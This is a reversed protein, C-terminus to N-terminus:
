RIQLVIPWRVIAMLSGRKEIARTDITRSPVQEYGVRHVEYQYIITDGQMQKSIVDKRFDEFHMYMGDGPWQQYSYMYFFVDGVEFNYIDRVGLTQLGMGQNEIGVLDLKLSDHLKNYQKIGFQQSLVITDRNSLQIMLVSDVKGFTSEAVKQIIKATLQHLTDYLWPNNIPKHPLLVLSADPGFRYKDASRIIRKGLFSSQNILYSSQGFSLDCSDCREIFRNMYYTTDVGNVEISDVWITTSVYEDDPTMYNLTDGVPFISWNQANAGIMTLFFILFTFLNKMSAM